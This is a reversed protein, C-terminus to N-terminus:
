AFNFDECGNRACADHRDDAFMESAPRSQSAIENAIRGAANRIVNVRAMVETQASFVDELMDCQNMIVALHHQLHLLTQPTCKVASQHFM